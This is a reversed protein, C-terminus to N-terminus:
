ATGQEWPRDVVTGPNNHAVLFAWPDIKTGGQHVELHLHAGTSSGTNGVGGLEDGVHVIDGVKVKLSGVLMHAYVSVYREGNIWHEVEVHVGLGGNDTAHATIVRGAALSGIPTGDGPTFDIGKHDSSCGGCPAVRPGYKDSVVVGTPFPWQVAATLDNTYANADPRKIGYTMNYATASGMTAVTYGGRGLDASATDISGAAVTLSQAGPMATVQDTSHQSQNEAMAPLTTAVAVTAALGLASFGAAGRVVNGRTARAREQRQKVRVLSRRSGTSVAVPRLEDANRVFSRPLDIVDAVELLEDPMAIAIASTDVADFDVEAEASRAAVGEPIVVAPREPAAARAVPRVALAEPRQFAAMPAEAARAPRAPSVPEVPALAEEAREAARRERRSTYALPAAAAALREAERLERRTVPRDAVATQTTLQQTLSAGKTTM